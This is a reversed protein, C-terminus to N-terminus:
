CNKRFVIVSDVLIKGAGGKNHLHIRIANNSNAVYDLKIEQYDQNPIEFHQPTRKSVASNRGVTDHLWLQFGMTTNPTSKVRCCIEYECGDVIGEKLDIFAGFEKQPHLLEDETAEFVIAFNEIRNTKSPNTTGWYNLFWGRNNSFNDEFIIEKKNEKKYEQLPFQKLSLLFITFAMISLAIILYDFRSVFIIAVLIITLYFIKFYPHFILLYLVYALKSSFKKVYKIWSSYKSILIIIIFTIVVILLAIILRFFISWKLIEPFMQPIGLVGFIISIIVPISINKFNM